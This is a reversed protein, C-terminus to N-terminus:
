NGLIGSMIGWSLTLTGGKTHSECAHRPVGIQGRLQALRTAHGVALLAYVVNAVSLASWRYRTPRRRRCISQYM